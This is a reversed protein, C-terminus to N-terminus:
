RELQFVIPVLAWASIAAGDRQAPIFHWRARVIKLAAEDLLRFGSSQEVAVEVPRGHEDVLVRLLVRGEQNRSIAQGPYNPAPAMDTRLDVFGMGIPPPDGIDVPPRPPLSIEPPIDAIFDPPPEIPAINIPAVPPVDARPKHDEPPKPNEKVIERFIVEFPPDDVIPAFAQQVPMFLVMAVAVHLAIALSTGAIRQGDLDHLTASFPAPSAHM